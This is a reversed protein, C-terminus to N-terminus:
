KKLEFFSGRLSESSVYSIKFELKIESVKIIVLDKEFIWKCNYKRIPQEVDGGLVVLCSDGSFFEIRNKYLNKDSPQIKSYTVNTKPLIEAPNTNMRWRGLLVPAISANNSNNSFGDYFKTDIVKGNAYEEEKYSYAEFKAVYRIYTWKGSKQNNKYAGYSKFIEGEDEEWLGDKIFNYVEHTLTKYNIGNKDYFPVEYTSIPKKAVICRGSLVIEGLSNFERFLYSSDTIRNFEALIKKSASDLLNAIIIKNEISTTTIFTHPPDLHITDFSFYQEVYKEQATACTCSLLLFSLLFIKM